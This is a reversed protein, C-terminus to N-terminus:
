GVSDPHTCEGGPCEHFDFNAKEAEARRFELNRKGLATFPGVMKGNQRSKFYFTRFDIGQRVGEKDMSYLRDGSWQVHTMDNKDMENPM